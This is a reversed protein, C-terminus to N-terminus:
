RFFSFMTFFVRLFCNSDNLGPSRIEQEQHSAEVPL